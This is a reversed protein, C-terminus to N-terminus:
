QIFTPNLPYTHKRSTEHLGIKKPISLLSPVFIVYSYPYRSSIHSGVVHNNTDLKEM